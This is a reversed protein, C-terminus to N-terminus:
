IPLRTLLKNPTLIKLGTEENKRKQPNLEVREDITEEPEEDCLPTMPALDDEILDLGLMEPKNVVNIM